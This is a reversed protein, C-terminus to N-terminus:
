NAFNGLPKYDGIWKVRLVKAFKTRVLFEYLRKDATWFTAKHQSALHPYVADYFSVSFGMAWRAVDTYLWDRDHPHLHWNALTLLGEVRSLAEQAQTKTLRKAHVAKVLGGSVEFLWIDPVHITVRGTVIDEYLWDARRCLEIPEGRLFWLLSVSANLVFRNEQIQEKAETQQGM